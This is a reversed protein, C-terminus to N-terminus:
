PSMAIAAASAAATAVIVHSQTKKLEIDVKQATTFAMRLGEPVVQMTLDVLELLGMPSLIYGEDLKEQVARVRIINKTLPLLEQVKARFGQDTRAKTVIAIVPMYDSLM